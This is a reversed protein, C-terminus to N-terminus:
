WITLLFCEKYNRISINFVSCFFCICLVYFTNQKLFPMQDVLSDKMSTLDRKKLYPLCNALSKQCYLSYGGLLRCRNAYQEILMLM